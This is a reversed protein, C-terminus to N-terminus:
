QDCIGTFDSAEIVSPGLLRRPDRFHDSMDWEVLMRAPRDCRSWVIARDHLVDGAAVGQLLKPRAGDRKIVGPPEQAALMREFRNISVLAAAGSLIKRRHLAM